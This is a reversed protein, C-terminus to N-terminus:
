FDVRAGAFALTPLGTIYGRRSYDSSYAIEERNEHFTVNQADVYASLVVGGGLAFAREVRVDLAYFDPLRISNQAGFLPQWQDGRV